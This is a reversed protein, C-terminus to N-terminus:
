VELNDHITFYFTSGKGSESEVWVRGGHRDVIRKVIALGIGVGHYEDITHLRKFVEFIQDSYEKDLGIGNDHVSFVYEDDEKSASIHVKPKVGKKCCFKLANSILNLFISTIQWKDGYIVPLKDYTIEANNEKISSQLNSLANNLAEEANFEKFKEGRTGVRSYDLLGQIMEKMRAAGNVMFEMFEDADQDLKGKYRREILQAYSAITRLPEQLDHSTIYAFSELEHNSDELEKITEKLRDEARKRKTIDTITLKIQKDEPTFVFETIADFTTNDKKNLELEVTQKEITKIADTITSYYMNKSKPSVLLTFSGQNMYSKTFGTLEVMTNNVDTIMGSPNLTIYGVPATDFLNQYRRHLAELEVQSRAIEENSEKLETIYVELNEEALKRETIDTNIELFGKPNGIEDKQLSWRSLVIIIEGNHKRHTLEGDWRNYKLVSEKIEAITVESHTSLLKYANKGLVEKESWGYLEEAGKNWFTITDDMDRVFIADHTIDLLEAQEKAKLENEKLLKYAEEIEATRAEVQEELNDHAEKLKRDDIKHQTIDKEIISAGIIAGKSDEMPSLTISVDIKAGNKKQRVTEFNHIVEGENVKKLIDRLEDINDRLVLSSINKGMIEESSYLYMKKAGNNWSLITGENDVGIVADDSNEVIAAMNAVMFALYEDTARVKDISEELDILFEDDNRRKM